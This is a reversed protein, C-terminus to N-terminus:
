LFQQNEAESKYLTFIASKGYVDDPLLEFIARNESMPVLLFPFGKKTMSHTFAYRQNFM